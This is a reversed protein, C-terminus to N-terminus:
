TWAQSIGDVSILIYATTGLGGVVKLDTFTVEGDSDTEGSVSNEFVFYKRHDVMTESGESAGHYSEIWSYIVCRKGAIPDGNFDLVRM